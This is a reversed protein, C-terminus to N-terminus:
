NEVTADVIDITNMDIIDEIHSVEIGSNQADDENTILDEIQNDDTEETNVLNNSITSSSDTKSKKEARKKKQYERQYSNYKEKHERNYTKSKEIYKNPNQQYQQKTHMNIIMSHKKAYISHLQQETMCRKVVQFEEDTFPQQNVLKSCISEFIDM